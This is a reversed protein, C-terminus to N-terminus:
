GVLAKSASGRVQVPDEAVGLERPEKRGAM